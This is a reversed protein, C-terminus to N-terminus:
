CQFGRPPDLSSCSSILHHMFSSTCVKRSHSKMMYLRLHPQLPRLMPRRRPYGPVPAPAAQEDSGGAQQQERWADASEEDPDPRSECNIRAALAVATLRKGVGDPGTFLLCPPLRDHAVARQLLRRVTQHGRISAFGM